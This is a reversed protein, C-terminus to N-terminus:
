KVTFNPYDMGKTGTLVSVYTADLQWWIESTKISVILLFLCDYLKVPAFILRRQNYMSINKKTGVSPFGLTDTLLANAPHSIRNYDRTCGSQSLFALNHECLCSMTLNTGWGDGHLPALSTPM